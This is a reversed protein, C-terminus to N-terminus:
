AEPRAWRHASGAPEGAPEQAASRQRWALAADTALLGVGILAPVLMGTGLAAAAFFAVISRGTWLVGRVAFRQPATLLIAQVLLATFLWGLFNTVPIGFYAGKNAWVWLQMAEVAVPDLMFDIAVLHLAACLWVLGRGAATRAYLAYTYGALVLWAAILTVPVDLLHPGFHHTYYYEGFPFGTRVGLVEVGFGTLGAALLRWRWGGPALVFALLGALGMFVPGTWAAGDPPQGWLTYSVVGGFWLVAYFGLLAGLAARGPHSTLRGITNM